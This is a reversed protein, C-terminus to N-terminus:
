PQLFLLVNFAVDQVECLWVLSDHRLLITVGNCQIGIYCTLDIRPQGVQWTSCLGIMHKRVDKRSREWKYTLKDLRHIQLQVGKNPGAKKSESGM